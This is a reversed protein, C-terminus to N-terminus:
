RYAVKKRLWHTGMALFSIGVICLVVSAVRAGTGSQPMRALVFGPVLTYIGTLLLAWTIWKDRRTSVGRTGTSAVSTSERAPPDRPTSGSATLKFRRTAAKSQRVRVFSLGCLAVVPIMAWGLLNTGTGLTAILCALFILVAIPSSLAAVALLNAGEAGMDGDFKPNTLGRARRSDMWAVILREHPLLWPNSSTRPMRVSEPLDPVCRRMPKVLVYRTMPM